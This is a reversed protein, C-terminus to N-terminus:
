ALDTALHTAANINFITSHHLIRGRMAVTLVGNSPGRKTAYKKVGFIVANRSM